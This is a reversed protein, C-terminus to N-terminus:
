FCQLLFYGLSLCEVMKWCINKQNLFAVTDVAIKVSGEGECLAFM